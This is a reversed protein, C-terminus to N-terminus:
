YVKKLTKIGDIDLQEIGEIYKLEDLDFLSYVEDLGGNNYLNNLDDNETSITKKKPFDYIFPEPTINHEFNYIGIYLKRFNIYRRLSSKINNIITKEDEVHFNIVGIYELLNYYIRSDIYGHKFLFELETQNFKNIFDNIYNEFDDFNPLIKSGKTYDLINKFNYNSNTKFILELYKNIKNYVYMIRLKYNEDLNYHRKLDDENDYGYVFKDIDILPIKDILIITRDDIVNKAVLSYKSM